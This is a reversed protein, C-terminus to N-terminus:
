SFRARLTALGEGFCPFGTNKGEIISTNDYVEAGPEAAIFIALAVAPAFAGVFGESCFALMFGKTERVDQSGLGLRRIVWLM